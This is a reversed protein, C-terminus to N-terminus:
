LQVVPEARHLQWENLDLAEVEEHVLGVLAKLQVLHLEKLAQGHVVLALLVQDHVEVEHLERHM